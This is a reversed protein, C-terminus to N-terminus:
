YREGAVGPGVGVRLNILDGGADKLKPEVVRDQPVRLGADDGPVSTQEGRPLQPEGLDRHNHQLGQGSACFRAYMM